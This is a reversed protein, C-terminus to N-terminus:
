GGLGALYEARLADDSLIEKAELIAGRVLEIKEELGEVGLGQFRELTLEGLLYDASAKIDYRTCSRDVGLITFYDAYNVQELKGELRALDIQQVDPEPEIPTAIKVELAGVEVLAALIQRASAPELPSDVMVEELTRLGDVLEALQEEERSLALDASSPRESPPALLTGAGGLVADIKPATWRRRVGDVALALMSRELALREEAPVRDGPAFRYSEEAMFLGFAIEEARRRALAPLETPKLYGRELLLVGARRTGLSTVLSAVQRYQERTIYGLRLAVEETRDARASSGAGVIRGQEFWLSRAPTTAVDLRGTARVKSALTLLRPFSCTALSGSLLEPPPPLAPEAPAPPVAAEVAKRAKAVALVRRRAAEALAARADAERELHVASPDTPRPEEGSPRSPMSDDRIAPAKASLRDSTLRLEREAAELAEEKTLQPSPVRRGSEPESWGSTAAMETPAKPAPPIVVPTRTTFSSSVSWAPASIEQQPIPPLPSPPRPQPQVLNAPRITPETPAAPKAVVEPAVPPEGAPAPAIRGLVKVPPPPSMPPGPHGLAALLDRAEGRFQAEKDPPSAALAARLAADLAAGDIPRAVWQAPVDRSAGDPEGDGLLVLPIQRTREERALQRALSMGEGNECGPSLVVVSPLTEKLSAIADSTNTAVIPALGTRQFARKM